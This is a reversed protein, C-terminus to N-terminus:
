RWSQSTKSRSRQSNSALVSGRSKHKKDPQSATWQCEDVPQAHHRVIRIVQFRCRTLWCSFCQCDVTFQHLKMDLWEVLSELTATYLMYMLLGLVFGQPVGFLVPQITSMTRNYIVQQTRGTQFLSIWNIVDGAQGYGCSGCFYTTTWVISHLLHTRTMVYFQM